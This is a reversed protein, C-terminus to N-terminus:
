TPAASRPNRQLGMSTSAQPPRPRDPRRPHRRGHRPERRRPPHHENGDFTANVAPIRSCRSPSPRPSSTASRSSSRERSELQENLRVRLASLEEVDIDIPRTSTRSRDAQIAAAGRRDGRADQDAPHGANEGAPDPPGRRAAQRRRARAGARRSPAFNLVDRQVIRGGPGTGNVQRSISARTPPSAGRWRRPSSAIRRKWEHRRCPPVPTARQPNRRPRRRGARSNRRTSADEMTAVDGRRVSRAATAVAEAPQCAPTSPQDQCRSASARSRRQRRIQKKVEAPNEKGPRSCRSSRASRRGEAGGAGAIAALTGAEFSEMEM